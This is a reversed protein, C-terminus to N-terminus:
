RINSQLISHIHLIGVTKKKNKKRHVCLSTIKKTNMISLAKEALTDQNISIPNKTMVKKVTLNQLNNGTENFRRIQGDTIIGTTIKKNNQVILTGLKKSSIIQLAKKMQLDENVFPIKNGTIMLEEVTRLQALLKTLEKMKAVTRREAKSLPNNCNAHSIWCMRCPRAAAHSLTLCCLMAGQLLIYPIYSLIYM